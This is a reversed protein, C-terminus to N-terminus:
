EEESQDISQKLMAVSEFYEAHEKIWCEDRDWWAISKLYDADEKEFRMRIVKAPVGAVIAYPEVDKTVVAGAAIVAGDGITHGGLIAAGDGIWVDNGIVVSYHDNEPHAVFEEFKKRKVYPKGVVTHDSFFLPHISVFQNAPHTVDIIRVNKGICCYKGISTRRIYCGNALYSGFGIRSKLVSCNGAISNKGEFVSDADLNVHRGFTSKKRRLFCLWLVKMRQIIM